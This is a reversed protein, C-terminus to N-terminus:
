IELDFSALTDEPTTLVCYGKKNSEDITLCTITKRSELIKVPKGKWDIVWIDSNGNIEPMTVLFIYNESCAMELIGKDSGKNAKASLRAQTEYKYSYQGLQKRFILTPTDNDSYAFVELVYRSCSAFIRKKPHKIFQCQHFIAKARTDIDKEEQWFDPFDGFEKIINGNNDILAYRKNFIGSFIFLSDSLRLFRSCNTPANFIKKFEKMSNNLIDISLINMSFTNRQYTYLQNGVLQIDVPRTAENPGNGVPILKTVNGDNLNLISILTDSHFDNLFLMNDKKIIQMTSGLIDPYDILQFFISDRTQFDELTILNKKSCQTTLICVLILFITKKM